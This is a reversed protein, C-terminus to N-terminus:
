KLELCVGFEYGPARDARVFWKRLLLGKIGRSRRHCKFTIDFLIQIILTVNEVTM